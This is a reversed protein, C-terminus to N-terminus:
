KWCSFCSCSLPCRHWLGPTRLWFESIQSSNLSNCTSLCNFASGGGGTPCFSTVSVVKRGSVAHLEDCWSWLAHWQNIHLKHSTFICTQWTTPFCYYTTPIATKTFILSSKTIIFIMTFSPFHASYILIPNWSAKPLFSFFFFVFM